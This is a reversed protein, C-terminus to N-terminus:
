SMSPASRCRAQRPSSIAWTRSMGSLRATTASDASRLVMLTLALGLAGGQGTGILGARVWAGGSPSVLLGTVGAAMLSSVVVGLLRRDRMRGALTPVLFTGLM